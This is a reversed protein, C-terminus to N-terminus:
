NVCFVNAFLCVFHAHLHACVRVRACARVCARVCAPMFPACFVCTLLVSCLALVPLILSSLPVKQIFLIRHVLGPSSLAYQLRTAPLPLASSTGPGPCSSAGVPLPLEPCPEPCSRGRGKEGLNSLALHLPSTRLVREDTLFPTCATQYHGNPPCGWGGPHTLPQGWNGMWWEDTGLNYNGEHAPTKHVESIGGVYLYANWIQLPVCM